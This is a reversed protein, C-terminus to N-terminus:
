KYIIGIVYNCVQKNFRASWQYFGCRTKIWEIVISTLLSMILLVLVIAWAYKFGYVFSKFYYARYFTHLFFINMSHRGLLVLIERIVPIRIIFRWSFLIVSLSAICDLIVVYTGTFSGSIFNRYYLFVIISLLLILFSVIRSLLSRNIVKELKSFVDREALWIGALIVLFYRKLNTNEWMLYLPVFTLLVVIVIGTKEYLRVLVPMMFILIIALSMYWWTGNLSPTGFIDTLGFFDTLFYAVSEWGTGYAEVYDWKMDTISFVSNIVAFLHAGLFIVWFNFYLKICRYLSSYGTEKRNLPKDKYILTLGYATIFVFIAM